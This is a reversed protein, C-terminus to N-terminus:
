RSGPISPFVGEALAALTTAVLLSLQWRKGSGLLGLSSLNHPDNRKGMFRSFFLAGVSHFSTRRM